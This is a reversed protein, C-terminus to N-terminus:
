VSTQTLTITKSVVVDHVFRFDCSQKITDKEDLFIAMICANRNLSFPKSFPCHFNKKENQCNLLDINSLSLYQTKDASIAICEPTELLQTAHPTSNVSFPFSTVKFLDMQSM